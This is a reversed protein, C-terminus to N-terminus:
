PWDPKPYEPRAVATAAPYVPVAKGGQWQVLFSDGKPKGTADFTLTGQVTQFTGHHLADILQANDVSHKQAVAQQVVQGVSYAEAIDSSMDEATGGHAALYAAVMHDNGATKADPWGGAPVIIGEAVGNGLKDSFQSGQDPGATEALSRPSFHQQQFAKVFAIADPLM